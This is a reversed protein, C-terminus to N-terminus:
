PVKSGGESRPPLDTIAENKDVGKKTGKAVERSHGHNSPGGGM